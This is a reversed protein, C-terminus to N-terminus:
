RTRFHPNPISSTEAPLQKFQKERLASYLGNLEARVGLIDCGQFQIRLKEALYVSFSNHSIIGREMHKSCSFFLELRYIKYSLKYDENHLADHLEHIRDDTLNNFNEVIYNEQVLGSLGTKYLTTVEKAIEVLLKAKNILVIHEESNNSSTSGKSFM